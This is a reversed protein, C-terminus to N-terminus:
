QHDAVLHIGAAGVGAEHDVRGLAVEHVLAAQRGVLEEGVGEGGFGVLV